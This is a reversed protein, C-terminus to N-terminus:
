VEACGIVRQKEKERVTCHMVFITNASAREEGEKGRWNMEAELHERTKRVM